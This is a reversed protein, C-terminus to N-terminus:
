EKELNMLAPNEWRARKGLHLESPNLTSTEGVGAATKGMEVTEETVNESRVVLRKYSGASDPTGELITLLTGWTSTNFLVAEATPHLETTSHKSLMFYATPEIQLVVVFM